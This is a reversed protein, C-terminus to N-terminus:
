GFPTKLGSGGPYITGNYTTHYDGGCHKATLAVTSSILIATCHSHNASEYKATYKSHPDAVTDSVVVQTGKQAFATNVPLFILCVLSLLTILRLKKM